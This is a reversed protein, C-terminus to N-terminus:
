KLLDTLLIISVVGLLARHKIWCQRTQKISKVVIFIVCYIKNRSKEEKYASINLSGAQALFTIYLEQKMTKYFINGM